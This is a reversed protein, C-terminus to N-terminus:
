PRPLTFSFRWERLSKLWTAVSPLIRKTWAARSTNETWRTLSCLKTEEILKTANADYPHNKLRYLEEMRIDAPIMEALLLTAEESMIRYCRVIRIAVMWQARLLVLRNCDYRTAMPFMWKKNKKRPVTSLLPFQTLMIAGGGWCM